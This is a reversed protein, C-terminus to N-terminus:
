APSAASTYLQKDVPLDVIELQGRWRTWVSEPLAALFHNQRPDGTPGSHIHMTREKHNTQTCIIGISM